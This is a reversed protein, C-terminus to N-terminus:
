NPSRGKFFSSFIGGLFWLVLGIVVYIAANLLLSVTIIIASPLAAGSDGGSDTVVLALVGAVLETPWLVTAVIALRHQVPSIKPEQFPNWVPPKPIFLGVLLLLLPIMVGAIAWSWLYKKKSKTM